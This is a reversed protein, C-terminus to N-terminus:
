HLTKSSIKTLHSQTLITFSSPMNGGNSQAQLSIQTSVNSSFQRKCTTELVTEVHKCHLISHCCCDHEGPPCKFDKCQALKQDIDKFGHEELIIKMDKFVGTSTHRDPFYLSQMDDAFQTNGM